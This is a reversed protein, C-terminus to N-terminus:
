DRDDFEYGVETVLITDGFENEKRLPLFYIDIDCFIGHENLNFMLNHDCTDCEDKDATVDSLTIPNKLHLQIEILEKLSELSFRRHVLGELVKTVKKQTM